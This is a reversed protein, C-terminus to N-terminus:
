LSNRRLLPTKANQDATETSNQLWNMMPYSHHKRQQNFVVIEQAAEFPIKEAHLNIKRISPINRCINILELIQLEDFEINNFRLTHLHASNRIVLCLYQFDDSSLKLNTIVFCGGNYHSNQVQQSIVDTNARGNSM